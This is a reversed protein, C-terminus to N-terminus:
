GQVNAAHDKFVPSEKAKARPANAQRHQMM